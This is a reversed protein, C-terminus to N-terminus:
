CTGDSEDGACCAVTEQKVRWRRLAGCNSTGGPRGTQKRKRGRGRGERGGLIPTPRRPQTRSPEGPLPDGTVRVHTNSAFTNFTFGDPGTPYVVGDLAVNTLRFYDRITPM